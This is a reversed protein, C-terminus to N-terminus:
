VYDNWAVNASVSPLAQGLILEQVKNARSTGASNLPILADTVLNFQRAFGFAVRSINDVSWLQTALDGQVCTPFQSPNFTRQFQKMMDVSRYTDYNVRNRTDIQWTYSGGVPDLATKQRVDTIWPVLSPAAEYFVYWFKVHTGRKQIGLNSMVQKNFTMEQSGPSSRSVEVVFYDGVYCGFIGLLASAAFFSAYYLTVHAWPAASTHLLDLSRRYHSVCLFLRREVDRLSCDRYDGFEASGERFRVIKSALYDDLLDQFSLAAKGGRRQYQRCYYEAESVDFVGVM